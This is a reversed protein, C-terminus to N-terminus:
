LNLFTTRRVDECSRQSVSGGHLLAEPLFAPPSATSIHIVEQLRLCGAPNAGGEVLKDRLIAFVLLPKGKLPRNQSKMALDSHCSLGIRQFVLDDKLYFYGSSLCELSASCGFLPSPVSLAFTRQATKKLPYSFHWINKSVLGLFVGIIKHM